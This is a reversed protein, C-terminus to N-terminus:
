RLVYRNLSAYEVRAEAAASAAAATAAAAAAPTEPWAGMVIGNWISVVTPGRDGALLNFLTNELSFFCIADSVAGMCVARVDGGACVGWFVCILVYM